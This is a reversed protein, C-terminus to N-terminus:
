EQLVLHDLLEDHGFYFHQSREGPKLWILAPPLGQLVFGAVQQGEHPTLAGTDRRTVMLHLLDEEGEFQYRYPGVTGSFPNEEIGILAFPHGGPNGMAPDFDPLKITRNERVQRLILRMVDDRNQREEPSVSDLM